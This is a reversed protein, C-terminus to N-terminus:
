ICKSSHIHDIFIILYTSSLQACQDSVVTTSKHTPNQNHFWSIFTYDHPQPQISNHMHYPKAIGSVFVLGGVEGEQIHKHGNRPILKQNGLLCNVCSKPAAYSSNLLYKLALLHHTNTTNIRTKYEPFPLLSHHVV